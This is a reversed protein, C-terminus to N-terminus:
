ANSRITDKEADRRRELDALGERYQNRHFEIEDATSASTIRSDLELKREAIRAEYIRDIEAIRQKQENTLQRMPGQDRELREIALEYASKM